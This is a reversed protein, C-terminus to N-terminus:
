EDLLSQTFQLTSRAKKSPPANSGDKDKDISSEAVRKKSSTATKSSSKVKIRERELFRAVVWYSENQFASLPDKYTKPNMFKCMSNASVGLERAMSTMSVGPTKDILTTSSNEGFWTPRVSSAMKRWPTGLWQRRLVSRTRRRRCYRRDRRHKRYFWPWSSPCQVLPFSM